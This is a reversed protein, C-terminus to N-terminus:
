ELCYGQVFLWFLQHTINTTQGKFIDIIIMTYYIIMVLDLHMRHRIYSKLSLIMVAHSTLIM